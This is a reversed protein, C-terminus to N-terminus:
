FFCCNCQSKMYSPPFKKSNWISYGSIKEGYILGAWRRVGERQSEEM